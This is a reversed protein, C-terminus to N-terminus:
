DKGRVNIANNTSDAPHVLGGTTGSAGHVRNDLSWNFSNFLGQVNLRGAGYGFDNPGQAFGTFVLKKEDAVGDGNIDKFYWIDPTAGVFLGGDYWFLATPWPLNEAFITSKDFHGDGDTDVLLRIRGLREDRRESYDRMEVVFLRGNEDFCMAVPDVVLPEPAALQLRLGEKVHFTKVADAPEVPRMRPLDTADVTPEAARTAVPLM